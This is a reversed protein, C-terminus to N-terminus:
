KANNFLCLKGTSAHNLNRRLSFFLNLKRRIIARLDSDVRLFQGCQTIDINGNALARVRNRRQARIGFVMNFIVM